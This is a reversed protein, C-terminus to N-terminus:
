KFAEIRKVSDEFDARSDIASNKVKARYNYITNVSYRLLTAIKGSDTIGLRILAFIRLETDLLEGKKLVIKGEESLLSNFEDVFGPYLSLFASDFTKYFDSIETELTNTRSLDDKLGAIDGLNIRKRVESRFNKMKEINDSLLNLFLAIYEEKITNADSVQRNLDSLKENMSALENNSAVIKRNMEHMQKQTRKLKRSRSIVVMALCIAVLMLVSIVIILNLYVRNQHEQREQYAKEIRPLMFAVQWPRLRSNYSLADTMSINIYRFARDLDQRGFLIDAITTLSGYDKISNKIDAVASRVLWKLQEDSNNLDVEVLSQDYAYMAYEHSEPDTRGVLFRNLSDARAFEKKERMEEVKLRIYLDSDPDAMGYLRDRYYIRREEAKQSVVPDKSYEALERGMRHMTSFYDLKLVPDLTLTDIEDLIGEAEMYHGTTIYLFALQIRSQDIKFSDRMTQALVLCRDICAQTSDFSYPHYEDILKRYLWYRRQDSIGASSALQELSKIRNAKPIDYSQRIDLQHDLETLMTNIEDSKKDRCGTAAVSALAIAIALCAKLLQVTRKM